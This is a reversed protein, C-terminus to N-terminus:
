EVGPLDAGHQTGERAFARLVPRIDRADLEGGEALVIGDDPALEDRLLPVRGIEKLYLRVPDEGKSPFPSPAETTERVEEVEDASPIAAQTESAVERFTM